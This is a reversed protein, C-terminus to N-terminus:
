TSTPQKHTSISQSASGGSHGIAAPDYQIMTDIFHKGKSKYEGLLATTMERKIDERNTQSKHQEYEHLVAEIPVFTIGEPWFVIYGGLVRIDKSLEARKQKTTGDVLTMQMKKRPNTKLWDVTGQKLDPKGTASDILKFFMNKMQLVAYIKLEELQIELAIQADAGTLDEPGLPVVRGGRGTAFRNILRGTLSIETPAVATSLVKLANEYEVYEKKVEEAFATCVADVNARTAKILPHETPNDVLSELANSGKGMLDAVTLVKYSDSAKIIEAETEAKQVRKGKHSQPAPDTSTPVGVVSPEGANEPPQPPVVVEQTGKTKSKGKKTKPAM